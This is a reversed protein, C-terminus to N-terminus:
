SVVVHVQGSLVVLREERPVRLLQPWFIGTPTKLSHRFRILLTYSLMERHM